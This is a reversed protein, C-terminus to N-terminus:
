FLPALSFESSTFKQLFFLSKPCLGQSLSTILNLACIFLEAKPCPVAEDQMAPLFASCIPVSTPLIFYKRSPNDPVERYVTETYLFSYPLDDAFFTSPSSTSSILPFFQLEHLSLSLLRVLPINCQGMAGQGWKTNTTAFKLLCLGGPNHTKKSAM